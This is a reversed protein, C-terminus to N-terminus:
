QSALKARLEREAQLWNSDGRDSPCGEEQWIEFARKAIDEQSIEAPELAKVIAPKNVNAGTKSSSKASVTTKSVTAKATPAAKAVSTKPSSTKPSSATKPSTTKSTPTAM